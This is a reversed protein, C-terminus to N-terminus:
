DYVTSESESSQNENLIQNLLAPTYNGGEDNPGDPNLTNLLVCILMWYKPDPDCGSSLIDIIEDVYNEIGVSHDLLSNKIKPINESIFSVGMRNLENKIYANLIGQDMIPTGRGLIDIIKNLKTDIDALSVNENINQKVNLRKLLSNLSEKEVDWIGLLAMYVIACALSPDSSLGAGYGLKVASLMDLGRNHAKRNNYWDPIYQEPISTKHESLKRNVRSTLSSYFGHEDPEYSSLYSILRKINIKYKELVTVEIDSIKPM